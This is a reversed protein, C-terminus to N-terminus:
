SSNPNLQQKLAKLLLFMMTMDRGGGMHDYIQTGSNLKIWLVADAMSASIDQNNNFGSFLGTYIVLNGDDLNTGMGVNDSNDTFLTINNMKPADVLAISFKSIGVVGDVDTGSYM